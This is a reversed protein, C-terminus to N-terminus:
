VCVHMVRVDMSSKFCSNMIYFYNYINKEKKLPKLYFWFRIDYSFM